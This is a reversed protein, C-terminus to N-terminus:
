LLSSSLPSGFDRALVRMGERGNGEVRSLSSVTIQYTTYLPPICSTREDEGTLVGFSCSVASCGNVPSLQIECLFLYGVDSPLPSAM